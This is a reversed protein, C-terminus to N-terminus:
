ARSYGLAVVPVANNTTLLSNIPSNEALNAKSYPKHLTLNKWDIINIDARLGPKIQGRDLMGFLQAIEHTQKKVVLEM